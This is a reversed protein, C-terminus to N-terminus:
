LHVVYYFVVARNADCRSRRGAINVLLNRFVDKRVQFVTDRQLESDAAHRVSQACQNCIGVQLVQTHVGLQHGISIQLQILGALHSVPFFFQVSALSDEGDTVTGCFEILEQIM